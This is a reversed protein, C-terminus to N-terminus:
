GCIECIVGIGFICFFAVTLKLCEKDANM